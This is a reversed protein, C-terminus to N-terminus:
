KELTKMQEDRIAKFETGENWKPWAGSNVIDEGARFYLQLDEVAGTMDWSADYEDSVGHYHYKIYEESKEVGYAVGKVKHDYGSNPYSMPVGLKSLEFHDSRYFYGKESESDPKLVRGQDNAHKRLFNDIESMGFGIVTVDNTPGFNNLGDMNIGGITSNLPYIPNAAYYASGLLGQEEATVAIFVVTRKPKTQAFSKAIELLGATGTANDLAGNYIGDGEISLDTGLHDWHAMYIFIDDPKESGIVKAIVNHSDIFALKNEISVSVNLDMNVARFGKTKAATYLNNLDLGAKEFLKLANDKTIWGEVSVLENTPADTTKQKRVMDFQPGTWSNAVTSWGYAAPKADHVIIAASAGQRAAEDFKYDWRGYYTMANGNFIEENQTAYGPDNVLMVVTKGTVDIGAYDNWDREPANIGYGVFVLESADISVGDVQRRTWVVQDDSYNLHMVSSDEKETGNATIILSPKNTVEISALPVKQTFSEGNGPLLGAKRFENEIYKITLEEGESAPARGGFEDSSLTIIHQTLSEVSIADAGSATQDLTKNEVPTVTAEENSKRDVSEETLVPDTKQCAVVIIPILLASLLKKM